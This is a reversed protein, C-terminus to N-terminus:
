QRLQDRLTYTEVRWEMYTRQVNVDAGRANWIPQLTCIINLYLRYRVMKVRFEYSRTCLIKGSFMTYNPKDHSDRRYVTYWFIFPYWLCDRRFIKWFHLLATCHFGTKITSDFLVLTKIIVSDSHYRTISVGLLVSM